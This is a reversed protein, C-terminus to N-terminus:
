NKQPLLLGVRFLGSLNACAQNLCEIILNKLASNPIRYCFILITQNKHFIGYNVVPTTLLIHAPDYSGKEVLTRVVCRQEVEGKETPEFLFHVM